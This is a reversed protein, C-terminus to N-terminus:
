AKIPIYIDVGGQGHYREFDPKYGDVAMGSTPLWQTYIETWCKKIAQSADEGSAAVPFAMYTAAELTFLEMEPSLPSTGDYRLAIMYDMRGEPMEAPHICLGYNTTPAESKSHLDAWRASGMVANWFAPIDASGPQTEIRYGVLVQADLHIKQPNM